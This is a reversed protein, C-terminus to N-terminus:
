FALLIKKVKLTLNNDRNLLESFGLYLFYRGDVEIKVDLKLPNKRVQLRGM